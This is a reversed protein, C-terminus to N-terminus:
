EVFIPEASTCGRRKDMVVYTQTPPQYDAKIHLSFPDYGILCGCSIWRWDRHFQHWHGFIDLDARTAKNWQAIAKNVPITLGGVGGQYKIADGHQLRVRFGQIECLLHEGTAIEWTVRRETRMFHSLTKYALWEYSNKASTAIRKKATTRGHNGWNCGVRIHAVKTEKLLYEIGSQVHQQVEYIAEVPSLYNSETLEDHIYGTILDGGLWLFLDEVKAVRRTSEVLFVTKQWLREIRKKAISLNYSNLDNVTAADVRQEMHWDTACIIPTANGRTKVPPLQYHFGSPPKKRIEDVFDIRREADILEKEAQRAKAKWSRVDSELQGIRRETRRQERILEAKGM